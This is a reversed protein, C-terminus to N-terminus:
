GLSTIHTEPTYNGFTIVDDGWGGKVHSGVYTPTNEERLSKAMLSLADIARELQYLAQDNM